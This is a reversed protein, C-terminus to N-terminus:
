SLPRKRLDFTLLDNTTTTFSVQRCTQSIEHLNNSCTKYKWITPVNKTVKLIHHPHFTQTLPLFNGILKKM